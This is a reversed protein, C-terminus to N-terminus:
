LRVSSGGSRAKMKMYRRIVGSAMFLSVM